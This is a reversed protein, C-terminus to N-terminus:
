LAFYILIKNIHRWVKYNNEGYKNYTVALLIPSKIIYSSLM